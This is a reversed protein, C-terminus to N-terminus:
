ILEATTPALPRETVVVGPARLAARECCARRETPWPPERALEPRDSHFPIALPMATSGRGHRRASHAMAPFAHARDVAAAASRQSPSTQPMKHRRQPREKSICIVLGAMEAASDRL